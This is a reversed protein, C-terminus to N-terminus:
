SAAGAPDPDCDARREAPPLHVGHSGRERKGASGAARIRPLPILGTAEDDDESHIRAPVSGFGWNGELVKTLAAREDKRCAQLLPMTKRVAASAGGLDYDLQIVPKYTDRDFGISELYDLAKDVSKEAFRGVGDILETIMGTEYGSGGGRKAAKMMLDTLKEKLELVKCLLSADFALMVQALKDTAAGLLGVELKLKCIETAAGESEAVWEELPYGRAYKSTDKPVDKFRAVTQFFESHEPDLCDEPGISLGTPSLRAALDLTIQAWAPETEPNNVLFEDSWAFHEITPDGVAQRLEEAVEPELTASVKFMAMQDGDFDLGLGKMVFPNAHGAFGDVLVARQVLVSGQWLVPARVAIVWDDEHIHAKAAASEPIGIQHYSLDPDPVMVCRVSNSCRVGFLDRTMLGFKGTLLAQIEDHYRNVSTQLDEPAATGARVAEAVRVVNDARLLIMDLVVRGPCIEFSERYPVLIKRTWYRAKADKYSYARPEDRGFTEERGIYNVVLVPLKILGGHPKLRHDLVTGTLDSGTNVIRRPETGLSRTIEVIGDLM